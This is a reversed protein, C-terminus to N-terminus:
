LTMALRFTVNRPAEMMAPRLTYAENFANKLILWTEVHRTWQFGLRADFVHFGRDNADRFSKVGPIIQFIADIAEMHSYYQYSLGAMWRADLPMEVDAKASETFRYKLINKESSSSNRVQETFDAYRPRLHMLGAMMSMPKGFVTGQGAWTLEIGQIITNGVNQSQFRPLIVMTFEMMDQYETWFVALDLFGNWHGWRVGQKMGIEASWGTESRLSVNPVVQFGGFVTNIFKEAITPFRYGQGWSARLYTFPAVKANAGLRWIPRKEENLAKPIFQGLISDPTQIHNYEFRWGATLTLWDAPKQEVQLYGAANRSTFVTDGYLEADVRSWTGLVGATLALNLGTLHRQFQYETYILHSRNSQDLNNDNNIGHIRGLLKHRNGHKDYYHIYPDLFYRFKRSSSLNTSGGSGTFAGEQDNAWIFFDQSTGKNLNTNLGAVLRDTLRYRTGLTIRGHENYTDKLYSQANQYVMSGSVDLRGIKQRHTFQLGYRSPAHDWWKRDADDPAMWATYFTNLRTYPTSKAFATRVHIVGNLAASGYLASGAGKMVEVQELNEVPMDGWNPFGADAQLAPIDDVLLLVRSGAGYSYGSGGRINAQGDVMNVGPLRNLADDITVANVHEVFTPKLIELSVTTEGLPREYRGSTVTATELLLPSVLLRIDLTTDQSPLLHLTLSQSEYGVYSIRFPYTGPLLTMQFTGDHGCVTSATGVQVTAGVLPTGTERDSVRGVIHVPEQALACCVAAM